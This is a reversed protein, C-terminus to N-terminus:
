HSNPVVLVHPTEVSNLYTFLRLSLCHYSDKRVRLPMIADEFAKSLFHLLLLTKFCLPFCLVNTSHPLGPMPPLKKGSNGVLIVDIPYSHRRTQRPFDLNAQIRFFNDVIDKIGVTSNELSRQTTFKTTVRNILYWIGRQIIFENKYFQLYPCLWWSSGSLHWRILHM